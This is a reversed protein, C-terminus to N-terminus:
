QYKNKWTLECVFLRLNCLHFLRPTNQGALTQGLGSTDSLSGGLSRGGHVGRHDAPLYGVSVHSQFCSISRSVLCHNVPCASPYHSLSIAPTPLSSHCRRVWTSQVGSDLGPCQSRSRLSVAPHDPLDVTCSSLVDGLSFQFMPTIFTAKASNQHHTTYASHM